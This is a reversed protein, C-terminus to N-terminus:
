QRAVGRRVRAGVLLAPWGLALASGLLGGAVVDSLWHAGLYTRSLAMLSAYLVARREWRWRQPGPPLLVIVVGVATVAAAVAHGSPFSAGTTGILSGIPRPRDFAAKLSGVLIESTVVALAFATLHVWHRRVVLVVIVAIRITWNSLTGGVINFAKAVWTLPGWRLWEMADLFRNDGRQLVDRASTSWVMVCLALFLALSVGSVLLARRPEELMVADSAKPESM